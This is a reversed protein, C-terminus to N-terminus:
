RGVSTPTMAALRSAAKPRSAGYGPKEMCSRLGAIPILPPPFVRGRPHTLICWRQHSTRAPMARIRANMAIYFAHSAGCLRLGHTRM